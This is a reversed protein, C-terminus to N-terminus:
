PKPTPAPFPKNPEARIIDVAIAGSGSNVAHLKVQMELTKGPELFGKSQGREIVVGAKDTLIVKVGWTGPRLKDFKAIAAKDTLDLIQKFVKHGCRHRRPGRGPELCPPSNEVPQGPKIESPKGEICIPGHAHQVDEPNGMDASAMPWDETSGEMPGQAAPQPPDIASPPPGPHAEDIGPQGLPIPMPTPGGYMAEGCLMKAMVIVKSAKDGPLGKPVHLQLSGSEGDQMAAASVTEGREDSVPPTAGFKVNKCGALVLSAAFAIRLVTSM